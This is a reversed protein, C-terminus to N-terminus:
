WKLNKVETQRVKAVDAPQVMDDTNNEWANREYTVIAAIEEDTLQDKYPQMASGPVGNLIMAIHRSIPKGVAVSSGKLAPFVPPLGKGDARHCASVFKNM